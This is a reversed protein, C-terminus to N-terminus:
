GLIAKQIATADQRRCGIITRAGSRTTLSLYGHFFPEIRQVDSVAIVEVKGDSVIRIIGDGLTLTGDWRMRYLPWGSTGNTIKWEM